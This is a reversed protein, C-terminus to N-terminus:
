SATIEVEINGRTAHSYPCIQHAAHALELTQASDMGPVQVNLQVDLGYVGTPDIGLRVRATVVLNELTIKRSAAVVQLSSQFCAAYGAAFLQEPNTGKEGTGGFETPISLSAIFEPKTSRVEGARGSEASVETTYLWKLQTNMM